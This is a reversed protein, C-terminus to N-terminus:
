IIKFFLLFMERRKIQEKCGRNHNERTPFLSLLWDSATLQNLFTKILLRHRSPPNIILLTSLKKKKKKVKSEKRKGSIFNTEKKGRKKYVPPPRDCPTQDIQAVGRAEKDGEILYICDLNILRAYTKREFQTFRASQHNKGWWLPAIPLCPRRARDSKLCIGDSERKGYNCCGCKTTKNEGSSFIPVLVVTYIYLSARQM